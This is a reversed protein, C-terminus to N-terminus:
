WAQLLFLVTIVIMSMVISTMAAAQRGSREAKALRTGDVGQIDRIEAEATAFEAQAAAYGAADMRRKEANDILDFLEPLSGKRVLKPIEREIERRTTRSHYTGIAPGLLGGVWSSLGYLADAKLKWQLFALLSLMGILATEEKAAALAKLHPHIDQVFRAAIFAIVHRDLPRSKPDARGAARDLAPLLDAIEDVHEHQILPSQCPLTRNIEYLCREIGYGPENIRLFGKLQQFTKLIISVDAGTRAQALAWTEHLDRALCEAAVQAEGRQMFEHAFAPGFGDPMFSFGKYRIPASPDLWMAVRAVLLDDGGSSLGEGAKATEAVSKVREALEGDGLGRRLWTELHSGNKLLKGAEAVRETFAKALTRPTTHDRGGFPFPGSAKKIPKRQMPTLKRGNIWLELQELSWREESDDLLMGRLPEILALPIRQSGCLTSYSGVEIKSAILDDDAMRTLTASGVIFSIITAGLAYVDDVTGGVGRGAPQALARNVPEFAIPQDFGAPTTACEGLVITQMEKDYFFLNGPRIARHPIGKVSLAQLAALLPEIIRRTLDYETIRTIGAEVADIVRGGLPREYVVVMVRQGLLPWEVKDWEVLPLLGRVTAGKLHAMVGTRPPLGPPCVLAFLSRQADKRDTVAYAEASPSDLEPLRGAPDIMFRDRLLIPGRALDGAASAQGAQGGGIALEAM